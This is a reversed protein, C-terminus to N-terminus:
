NGTVCTSATCSAVISTCTKACDCHEMRVRGSLSVVLKRVNAAPTPTASCIYLSGLSPGTITGDPQYVVNPFGSNSGTYQLKDNLTSSQLVETAERTGNANADAWLVWQAPSASDYSWTVTRDLRVAEARALSLSSQIDNVVTALRNSNISASFSPLAVTALVAIIAIVTLLETLSFGSQGTCKRFAKSRYVAM